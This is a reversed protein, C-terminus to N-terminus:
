IHYLCYSGHFDGTIEISTFGLKWLLNSKRLKWRVNQIGLVHLAERPLWNNGHFYSGHFVQGLNKNTNVSASCLSQLKCPPKYISLQNGSFCAGGHSDFLITYM